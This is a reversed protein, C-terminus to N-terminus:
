GGGAFRPGSQGSAMDRTRQARQEREQEDQRIKDIAGFVSPAYRM